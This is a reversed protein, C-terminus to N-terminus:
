TRTNCPQRQRVHEPGCPDALRTKAFDASLKRMVEAHGQGQLEQRVTGYHEKVFTAFPTAGRSKAPTLLVLQGTCLACVFKQTDLSKSHRGVTNKCRSCQYQYKYNIDYSHCRTVVPLEPHVVTAKRAYMKWFQGHGDRVGNIMWTAAHCMEHVLTDRLREASDCVKESLEIRAYRQGQQQGTVCYGATKRMKKNWIVSMAPLKSDFVTSNYLQYLKQSLEQRTQKFGRVYSSRPDSLSELFCGPTKCLVIRKSNAARPETQSVVPRKVTPHVPTVELQAAREAPRSGQGGAPPLSLCPKPEKSAAPPTHTSGVGVGRNKRIRALLSEFEENSSDSSDLRPPQATESQARRSPAPASPTSKPKVAQQQQQEEEELGASNLRQPVGGKRSGWTIRGAGGEDDSDSLFIPRERWSPPRRAAPQSAPTRRHGADRIHPLKKKETVFDDGSSGDSVIFHQLSNDSSGGLLVSSKPKPTQLRSLFDEFSGDSGSSLVQESPSGGESVSGPHQQGPSSGPTGKSSICYVCFDDFSGDSDSSLAQESPNESTSGGESESDSLQRRTTPPRVAPPSADGRQKGSGARGPVVQESKGVSRLLERATADLGGPKTWGLKGAVRQFLRQTDDDM